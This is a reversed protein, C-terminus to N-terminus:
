RWYTACGLCCTPLWFGRLNLYLGGALHLQAGPRGGGLVPKGQLDRSQTCSGVCKYRSSMMDPWSLHLGTEKKLVRPKQRKQQPNKM